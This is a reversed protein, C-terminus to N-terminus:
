QKEAPLGLGLRIARRRTFGWTSTLVQLVRGRGFVIQGVASNGATLKTQFVHAFVKALWRWRRRRRKLRFWLRYLRCLRSVVDVFVPLAKSETHICLIIDFKFFICTMLYISDRSNLISFWEFNPTEWFSKRYQIWFTSFKLNKFNTKNYSYQLCAINYSYINMLTYIKDNM